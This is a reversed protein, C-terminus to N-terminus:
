QWFSSCSTSRLHASSRFSSRTPIEELGKRWMGGDGGDGGGIVELGALMWADLCWAKLDLGGSIELTPLDRGGSNGHTLIYMYTYIRRAGSAQAHSFKEWDVGEMGIGEMVETVEELGNWDQWCGPM